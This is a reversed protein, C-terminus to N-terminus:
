DSTIHYLVSSAINKCCQLNANKQIFYSPVSFSYSSTSPLSILYLIDMSLKLLERIKQFYFIFCGKSSIVTTSIIIFSQVNHQRSINTYFLIHTLLLINYIITIFM